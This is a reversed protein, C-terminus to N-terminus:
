NAKTGYIREKEKDMEKIVYKTRNANWKRGDEMLTMITNLGTFLQMSAVKCRDIEPDKVTVIKGPKEKKM